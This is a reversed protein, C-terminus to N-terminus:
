RRYITPLGYLHHVTHPRGYRRLTHYNHHKHKRGFGVQKFSNRAEHLTLTDYKKIERIERKIFDRKSTDTKFIDLNHGLEEVLIKNLEAQNM